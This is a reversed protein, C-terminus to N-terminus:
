TFQNESLYLMYLLSEGNCRLHGRSKWLMCPPISLELLLLTSSLDVLHQIATSTLVSGSDPLLSDRDGFHEGLVRATGM